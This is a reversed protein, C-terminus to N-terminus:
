DPFVDTYYREEEQFGAERLVDIKSDLFPLRKALTESFELLLPIEDASQPWLMKVITSLRQFYFVDTDYKFRISYGSPNILRYAAKRGGFRFYRVLFGIAARKADAEGFWILDSATEPWKKWTREHYLLGIVDDELVTDYLCSSFDIDIIPANLWDKYEASTLKGAIFERRNVNSDFRNSKLESCNIIMNKTTADRFPVTAYKQWYQDLVSVEEFFRDRQIPLEAVYALLVILTRIKDLPYAIRDSFGKRWEILLRQIEIQQNTCKELLLEKCDNAAFRVSDDNSNQLLFDLDAFLNFVRTGEYYDMEAYKNSLLQLQPVYAFSNEHFFDTISKETLLEQESEFGKVLITKGNNDRLELERQDKWLDRLFIDLAEQKLKFKSDTM